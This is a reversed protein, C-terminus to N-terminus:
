CGLDNIFEIISNSIVFALKKQYNEDKLKELENKNSLFGCEILIAPCELRDLVFISSTAKKIQRTNKDDVYFKNNEQICNALNKSEVNNKSYFVQLGSYKEEPFKNMHISVFIPSDVKKAFEVRNKLDERKKNKSSEEALLSDTTRTELVNVNYFSLAKGIKESIELNLDKEFVGDVVAGSDNGGHGADIIVTYKRLELGTNIITSNEGLNQFVLLFFFIALTFLAGVLILKNLNFYLKTTKKM